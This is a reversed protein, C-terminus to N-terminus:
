ELLYAGISLGAGLVQLEAVHGLDEHAIEHAMIGRLQENARLSREEQALSSIFATRCHTRLSASRMQVPSEVTESPILRLIGAGKDEFFM